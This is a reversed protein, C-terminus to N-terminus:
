QANNKNRKHVFAYWFILIAVAACVVALYWPSNISEAKEMEILGLNAMYYLVVVIANNAFHALANVYLSGSYFFLYGLAIGLMFRPLFAFFDFHFLSFVMATVFIALHHRGGFCRMLVQQLAGRFLLEECLAPVLALVILNVILAGVGDRMMFSKLLQQSMEGMDRMKIELASMSQPLHMADNICTLWDSMPLLFLLVFFSALLKVGLRDAGNMGLYRMPNKNFLWAFLVATGAFVLIQTVAQSFLGDLHVVGFVAMVFFVGMVIIFLLLFVLMLALLQGGPRTNEFFQRM